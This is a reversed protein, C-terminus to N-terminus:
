QYLVRQYIKSYASGLANGSFYKEYRARAARGMREARQIDLLSNMAEALAKPSEPDVVFGTVEHLNVFSTGTGIECSVMPKGFMAAEILVVGFAESRLHSPLVCARCEKLLTIKEEDSVKGAFLINKLGLSRSLEHLRGAEPGAGAIVIRAKLLKAARLLIHLGKYYRLVGIFLFFPEGEELGLRQMIGQDETTPYNSEDIGLPIVTLKNCLEPDSLVQSTQAYAPSTAIVASMDYLTHIMLPAYLKGLWKQRVIDSHYTMVTPKNKHVAWNMLDAFPWPFHYHIIDAEEVLASFRKFAVVGGMDCSAPAMWSRARFVMGEPRLIEDPFPTPSLTFIRSEVEFDRTGLAIQRIAEPVGGPPDPYYTKYVHLVSKTNLVPEV